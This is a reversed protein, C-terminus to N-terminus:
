TSNPASGLTPGTIAPTRGATTTTMRPATQFSPRFAIESQRRATIAAHTAAPRTQAFYRRDKETAYDPGQAEQQRARQLGQKGNEGDDQDRRTGDRRGRLTRFKALKAEKEEFYSGYEVTGSIDQNRKKLAAQNVPVPPDRALLEEVRDRRALERRPRNQGGRGEEAEQHGPRRAGRDCGDADKQGRKSEYPHQVGQYAPQPLGRNRSRKQISDIGRQDAEHSYDHDVQGPRRQGRPRCPCDSPARSNGQEGSAPRSGPDHEGAPQESPERHEGAPESVTGPGPSRGERNGGPNTPPRSDKM